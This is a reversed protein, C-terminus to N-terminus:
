SNTENRQKCEQGSLLCVPSKITMHKPVHLAQTQLSTGLLVPAKLLGGIGGAAVAVM